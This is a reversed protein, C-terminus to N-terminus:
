KVRAAGAYTNAWYGSLQTIVVGTRHNEANIFYGGGIYIGTHSIGASKGYTDFFVLDGPQLNSSSVHQGSYYQGAASHGLDVGFKSYVYMTFGSCDFGSPSAGGSVYRSGLYQEAFDVVSYGSASGGSGGFSGNYGNSRSKSSGLSGVVKKESVPAKVMTTSIVQSDVVSGGVYTVNSVVQMEGPKGPQTVKSYSKAYKDSQTTVTDYPISQTSVEQRTYKVTLVPQANNVEFTDGQDVSEGAFTTNMAYLQDVSVHLKNAVMLASDGKQATYTQTNKASATLVNKMDETTRVMNKPFVGKKIQIDQSFSVQTNKGDSKYPAIINNLMAQIANNDGNAGVLKDDVYLGYGNSVESGTASLINDSLAAEDLLDSKRTLAMRYVPAKTLAFSEGSAQSVRDEVDSAAANYVKDSSVMGLMKGNYSVSLAFTAGSWLYVTLGLVALGGLPALYNFARSHRSWFRGATGRLATGIGKFGTLPGEQVFTRATRAVGDSAKESVHLICRMISYEGRVFRSRKIETLNRAFDLLKNFSESLTYYWLNQFGEGVFGATKLAFRGTQSCLSYLKYAPSGAIKQYAGYVTVKSSAEADASKRHASHKWAM